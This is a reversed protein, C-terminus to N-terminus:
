GGLLTKLSTQAKESIGLPSTLITQTQALRRKKVKDTAEQTALVEANAAKQEAARVANEQNQLMSKQSKKEQNSSYVTSGTVTAATAAAAILLATSTAVAM